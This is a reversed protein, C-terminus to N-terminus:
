FFTGKLVEASDKKCEIDGLNVLFMKARKRGKRLIVKASLRFAGQGHDGGMIIDLNDWEIPRKHMARRTVKELKHLIVTVPDKYWYPIREQGVEAVGSIPPVASQSLSKLQNDPVTFKTGFWDIYYKNIVKQSHVTVGADEWMSATTAADMKEKAVPMGIITGASV